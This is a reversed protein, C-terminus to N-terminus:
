QSLSDLKRWHNKAKLYRAKATLYKSMDNRADIYAAPDARNPEPLSLPVDSDPDPDIINAKTRIRTATVAERELTEGAAKLADEAFTRLRKVESDLIEIRMDLAASKEKAINPDLKQLKRDLEADMLLSRVKKYQKLAVAVEIRTLPLAISSSTPSNDAAILLSSAIASILTSLALTTKM